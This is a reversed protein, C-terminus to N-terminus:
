QHKTMWGSSSNWSISSSTWLASPSSGVFLTELNKLLLLFEDLFFILLVLLVRPPYLWEELYHLYQHFPLFVAPLWLHLLSPDLSRPWQQPSLPHVGLAPLSFPLLHFAM